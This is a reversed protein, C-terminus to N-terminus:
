KKLKELIEKRLNETDELKKNQASYISSCRNFALSFWIVNKKFINEYKFTEYFSTWEEKFLGSCISYDENYKEEIENFLISKFLEKTQNKDFFLSDNLTVKNLENIYYYYDWIIANKRNAKIDIEKKLISVLVEKEKPLIIYNNTIFDLELLSMKTIQNWTLLWILNIDWDMLKKWLLYNNTIYKLGKENENKNLYFIANYFNARIQNFIWNYSIESIDSKIFKKELIKEIIKNWKDISLVKIFNDKVSNALDKKFKYLDLNQIFEVILKEEEKSPMSNNLNKYIEKLKENKCAPWWTSNQNQDEKKSTLCSFLDTTEKQLNEDIKYNKEFNIIENIWNWEDNIPLNQYKTTFYEDPVKSFRYPINFYLFYFAWLIFISLLFSAIVWSSQWEETLYKNDLKEEWKNLRIKYIIFAYILYIYMIALIWWLVAFFILVETVYIDLIYLKFDNIVWYFWNELLKTYEKDLNLILYWIWALSWIFLFYNIFHLIAFKKPNKLFILSFVFLYISWIFVYISNLNWNLLYINYSIFVAIFSFILVLFTHIKISFPMKINKM